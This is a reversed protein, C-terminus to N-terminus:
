RNQQSITNILATISAANDAHQTGDSAFLSNEFGVRVAGGQRVAEALCLHEDPGFACVMWDNVDPLAQRFPVLDQPSSSQGKTYRGLVFLVSNQQTKVTGQQQWQQLQEIDNIDYLIHQIKTGQEACLDYLKPALTKDRAIERVSISAWKPKLTQLCDFQAEVDFIGAAETTIQIELEPVQRELEALAESYLGADISHIGQEDRVHLHLAHAGAKYCAAATSVTEPIAIPLCSHDDKGRRAGNPAVMIFPHTM